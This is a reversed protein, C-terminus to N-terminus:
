EVLTVAIATVNCIDECSCGRSLDMFPKSVGQLIPGIASANALRQTLKYGINGADLDPFILVNANGAIMSGPAKSAGVSEVIAADLQLEGDIKLDPFRECAIKFASAVKNVKEHKGSGKTSFSLLAVKPDDGIVRECMKACSYAISALQSATPDPLVACDGFIMAKPQSTGMFNPIVMLFSSSIVDVNKATGLVQAAATIVDGTTHVAGGVSADARSARVMFAAHYLPRIVITRAVELTMGKHKRLEVFERAYEEINPDEAPDVITLGDLSVNAAKACNEISARKGLLIAQSVIKNSFVKRAAEITRADTGEPFVVRKPNEKAKQNIKAVIDM